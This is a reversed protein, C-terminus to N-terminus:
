PRISTNTGRGGKVNALRAKVRSVRAEIVDPDMKDQAEEYAAIAEEFRGQTELIHGVEFRVRAATTPDLAGALLRRFVALAQDPRGSLAHISGLIMQAEVGVKADSAVREALARADEYHGARFELSILEISLAPVEPRNPFAELVASLEAIATEVEGMGDRLLRAAAVRAEFAAPTGPSLDAVARYARLAGERDSLYHHRLDALAKLARLRVPLLEPDKDGVEVLVAEYKAAAVKYEAHFM